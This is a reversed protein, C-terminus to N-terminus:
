WLDSHCWERFQKQKETTRMRHMLFMVIARCRKRGNVSYQYVGNRTLFISGFGFFKKIEELIEKGKQSVSFRPYYHIKGNRDKNQFRTFCGEGEIFGVLWLKPLM